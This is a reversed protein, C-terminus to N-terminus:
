TVFIMVSKNSFLSELIMNQLGFVISMVLFFHYAIICFRTRYLSVPEL